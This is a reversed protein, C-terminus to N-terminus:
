SAAAGTGEDAAANIDATSVPKLQQGGHTAAGTMTLTGAKTQSSNARLKALLAATGGIKSADAQAPLTELGPRQDALELEIQNPDVEEEAPKLGMEKALQARIEVELKGRLDKEIEARVTPDTLVEKRMAGKPDKWHQYARIEADTARRLYPNQYDDIERELFEITSVNDTECVHHVFPIKLGDQRHMSAVRETCYYYRPEGTRHNSLPRHTEVIRGDETVTRFRSLPQVRPANPDFNDM